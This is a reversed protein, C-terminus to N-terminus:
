KRKGRIKEIASGSVLGCAVGLAIYLKADLWSTVGSSRAILFGLGGGIFGLFVTILTRESM